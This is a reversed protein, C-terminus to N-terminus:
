GIMSKTMKKAEEARIVLLYFSDRCGKAQEQFATLSPASALATVLNVERMFDDGLERLWAATKKKPLEVQLADAHQHVAKAVDRWLAVAKLLRAFIDASADKWAVGQKEAAMGIKHFEEGDPFHIDTRELFTQVRLQISGIAAGDDSCAQELADAAAQIHVEVWTALQKNTARIGAAYKKAAASLKTAAKNVALLNKAYAKAVDDIAGGLSVGKVAGSAVKPTAADRAKVWEKHLKKWTDVTM